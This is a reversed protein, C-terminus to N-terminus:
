KLSASYKTQLKKHENEGFQFHLENIGFESSLKIVIM